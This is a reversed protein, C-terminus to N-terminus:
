KTYSKITLRLGKSFKTKPHWNLLKKAKTVDPYLKM